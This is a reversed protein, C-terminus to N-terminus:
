LAFMLVFIEDSVWQLLTKSSPEWGLAPVDLSVRLMPLYDRVCREQVIVIIM